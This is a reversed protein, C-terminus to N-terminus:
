YIFLIFFNFIFFNYKQFNKVPSYRYLVHKFMARYLLNLFKYQIFHTFMASYLMGSYLMYTYDHCQIVHKFLASYFMNLSPVICLFVRKFM